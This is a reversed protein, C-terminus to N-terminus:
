VILWCGFVRLLMDATDSLSTAHKMVETTSGPNIECPYLPRILADFLLSDERSKPM